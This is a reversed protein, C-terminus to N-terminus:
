FTSTLDYPSELKLEVIRDSLPGILVFLSTGDENFSLDYLSESEVKYQLNGDYTLGGSIDFASNLTYYYITENSHFGNTIFVKTGDRNFAFGSPNTIQSSLDFSSGSYTVSSTIDFASTLDYQVILSGFNSSVNDSLVLLTMGDPSFQLDMAELTEASIDLLGEYSVGSSVDFPTTLGYQFIAENVRGTVFLTLGDASFAINAPVEDESNVDLAGDVSANEFNYFNGYTIEPVNDRLTINLNSNAAIANAVDAAANSVFASNAFTFQLGEVSNTEQHDDVQGSISLSASFGDAAVSLSPTLGSPLNNITYHSAHTLTSGANAFKDDNMYITVTGEVDGDNLATEKFSGVEIDYQYILDSTRGTIFFREGTASFAIGTPNNDESSVSFPSGVYTVISTIDYPASLAYQYVQDGNSGAILMKRGDASFALGQAYDEEDVISLPNGDYTVGSTIDFPNALSYQNVVDSGNGVIYMKTGDPKFRIAGPSTEQAFVDLPNGDHTVGSTVDFPTTLSYQHVLRYNSVVFMKLGDTSFNLAVPVEDSTMGDSTLLFSPTVVTVGTLIDFPNALDFQEVNKYFDVTFMKTGDPSFAIDMADQGANYSVGSYNAHRVDFADGYVVTPYNDLFDIGLNSSASSVNKILSVNGNTFASNNFTFVLDDVDNSNQHELAIGSFTLTASLGDPAVAFTPTLGSPIGSVTYDTSETLNGGPNTFAADFVRITLDGEINGDNAVTEIFGGRQISFETIDRSSSAESIFVRSGKDDFAFGSPSVILSSFLFAEDYNIDSGLDYPVTLRFSHINRSLGVVLMTFGNDAFLVESPNAEYTRPDYSSLLTWSSTIDYAEALSYQVIRQGSGVGSNLYVNTGDDDFTIARPYSLTISQTGEYSINSTIDYLTGLDFQYIKHNQLGAIYLKDGTPSFNIGLPTIDYSSFDLAGDLSRGFHIQYPASLTYQYIQDTSNGIIYMKTGDANFKIGQPNTDEEIASEGEHVLGNEISFGYGYSVTSNNDAFDISIESSAAVANEVASADDGLFAANTFTFNLSSVDHEDQHDDVSGTLTLTATTGDASISMDPILGIPLNAISYQNGYTFSGGTNTFYDDTIHINLAGEVTGANSLQENFGGRELEFRMLSLGTARTAYLYEGNASFEFGTHSSNLTKSIGDYSMTAIDFPSALSYSFIETTSNMYFKEGDSSFGIGQASTSQLGVNFSEGEYSVTSTIDYPSSLNYEFVVDVPHIGLIFMKLGDNSFAIGYPYETNSAVSYAGEHTATSLDFATTLSYQNVDDGDSGILFFTYGDASFDIGQVQSEESSPDFTHILTTTGFIDYPVSLDHTYVGGGQYASVFMKTGDNNFLVDSVNNVPAGYIGSNQEYLSLVFGDGYKLKENNENFDIPYNTEAAIANIVDAANSEDFASNAFSINISAIDDENQHDDAYGTFTLTAEQGSASIALNPELGIPLNNIAYHSRHVLASGANVFMDDIIKFKFEGDLGGLNEDTEEFQGYEFEYQFIRDESNGLVFFSTGEPHFTIEYASNSVGTLDLSKDSYSVGASIDFPVELHYELVADTNLGTIFMKRGDASFDLGTPNQEQTSISFPDGDVDFGDTVDFATTMSYQNVDDGSVGILFLSYGDASFTFDRPQTEQGSLVMSNGDHTVTSNIDFPTSLSYQVIKPGFAGLIYMKSGDDNFTIAEPQTDEGAISYPTGELIASGNLDFPKSLAYQYVADGTYGVVYLKTGDSNFTMCTPNNEDGGVYLEGDFTGEVEIDFTFDYVIEPNNDEFDLNIGSSAASSNAVSSADNGSFASNEFTFQLSALDNENQHSTARGNFTLIAYSGNTSVTLEPTLGVPLNGITYDSNHILMGGSNTFTEGELQVAAQGSFSGNNLDSELLSSTNLEYQHVVDGVYGVAFLKTGDPSFALGTPA